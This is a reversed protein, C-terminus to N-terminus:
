QKWKKNTKKAQPKPAPTITLNVKNVINPAQTPKAAITPTPPSNLFAISEIGGEM